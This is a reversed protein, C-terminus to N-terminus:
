ATPEVEIGLFYRLSGLDKMKFHHQLHAKLSAIETPSNGTIIMDDVYVLLATYSSGDSKFFLSCDALSQQFGAAKVVQSFRTFWQRPAQKLGYLSKDLKCVLDIKDSLQEGQSSHQNKLFTYAPPLAMFVDEELDGHLFANTVDMQTIPWGKASAVTLLTRVTIMKAVPAFTESYDIGELQSFGRAVLRAKHRDLTGDVNFKLKFLWKCSVLSKSQGQSGSVM